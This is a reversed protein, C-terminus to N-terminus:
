DDTSSPQQDSMSPAGQRARGMWSNINNSVYDRGGLGVALGLGIAVAAALGWALAQAFLYLIQVDIGMTDLGVVVATFYLFFRVGDAFVGTYSTQSATQSREIARAVFDAVIFGVVIVLLGAIFAPLYSVATSIWNSLVPIALADAAALLALFYVYWAVLKGFASDVAGESGLMRGLPTRMTLTDLETRDVITRVVGALVRGIIWGILLIVIAAVIRPLYTLITSITDRLFGPLTDFQLAVLPAAALARRSQETPNTTHENNKM